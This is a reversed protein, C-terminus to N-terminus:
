QGAVVNWLKVVQWGGSALTRGDPSFAVSWVVGKYGVFTRLAAGTAVDWLKVTQDSSASALMKGDPSFVVDNVEGMHGRLTRVVQRTAVDWVWIEGASCEPWNKRAACSGAAITKGDPSFAMSEGTHNNLTYTAQGTAMDWLLIEGALCQGESRSKCASSALTKGDSSFALRSVEGTHGTLTRVVQWVTTDWIRIKGTTCNGRADRTECSGSVLSKGDPSFAVSREGSTGDLTRVVRGTGVDRLEMDGLLRGPALMKGDPSFAVGFSYGGLNPSGSRTFVVQGTAVDWLKVAGDGSGVAMTKGDSSFVISMVAGSHSLIKEGLNSFLWLFFEGNHNPDFGYGPGGYTKIQPPKGGLLDTKALVQGDPWRVLRIDWRLQYAPQGDMYSGVSNVNEKICVLTQVESASLAEIFPPQHSPPISWKKAGYEVNMLTLVPSKPSGASVSSSFAAECLLGAKPLLTEPAPTPTLVTTPTATTIATHTPMPTSSSSPTASPAAQATTTQIVAVATALQATPNPMPVVSPACATAAVTLILIVLMYAVNFHATHKKNFMANQEKGM